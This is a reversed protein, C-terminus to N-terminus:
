RWHRYHAGRWPQSFFVRHGHYFYFGPGYWYPGVYGYYPYGGYYPYPYYPYPYAPYGLGIGVSIGAESRPAATFVFAGAAIAVLLIKKWNM